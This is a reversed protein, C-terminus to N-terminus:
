GEAAMELEAEKLAAALAPGVPGAPQGLAPRETRGRALRPGGDRVVLTAKFTAAQVGIPALTALAVLATVM